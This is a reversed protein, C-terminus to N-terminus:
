GWVLGEWIEYLGLLVEEFEGFRKTSMDPQVGFDHAHVLELIPLAPFDDQATPGPHLSTSSRQSAIVVAHCSLGLRIRRPQFLQLFSSKVPMRPLLSTM